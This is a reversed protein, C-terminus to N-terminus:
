TNSLTLLCSVLVDIFRQSFFFFPLLDCFNVISTQVNGIYKLNEFDGIAPAVNKVLEVFVKRLLISIELIFISNQVCKPTCVFKPLIHCFSNM